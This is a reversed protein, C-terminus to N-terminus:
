GVRGVGRGFIGQPRLLLVLFLAAFVLADKVQSLRFVVSLSEVLGILFGALVAGPISGMGGLIIIALGKLEVQNGMTPEISNLSMGYLVGAAGGLASALFFTQMIVREINVGLLAAARPNEAVARMTKGMMTNRVLWTLGLMLLLSVFLVVVDLLRIRVNGIDYYVQPFAERPFQKRDPQFLLRALGVFILGMGISSILASLHPARRQRLRYFAVRDLLVGLAGALLVALPFAILLSWGAVSVLWWAVIAAMMFIAAHALNLIDLVGFILTYGLAFLAYISGSFIGQLIQAPLQSFNM